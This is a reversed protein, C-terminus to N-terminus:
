VAEMDPLAPLKKIAKMARKKAKKAAKARKRKPLSQSETLDELLRMLIAKEDVALVRWLGEFKEALMDYVM